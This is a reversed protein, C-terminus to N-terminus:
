TARRVWSTIRCPSETLGRYKTQRLGHGRVLESHTGEIGNRPYMSRSFERSKMEERRKEVLDHRLGVVLIRRGSKARTCQKQVPCSDCQSGWELRYYETGMYSDKIHSCQTSTKGQPCVARQNEVDVYLGMPTTRGRTPIPVPRGLLEMAHREAQALTSETVYGADAYIARTKDRPTRQRKLAEPLGANEDQAAETTLIETIFHEGPEAKVKAPQQPDVSEVVHVKYGIWQKTGKDAYHADPDHPNQM